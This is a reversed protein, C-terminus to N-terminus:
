VSTHKKHMVGCCEKVRLHYNCKSEAKLYVSIHDFNTM